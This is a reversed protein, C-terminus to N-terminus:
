ILSIVQIWWVVIECCDEHPIICIVSIINCLYVYMTYLWSKIVTSVEKNMMRSCDRMVQVVALSFNSDRVTDRLSRFM